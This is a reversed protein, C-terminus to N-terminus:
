HFYAAAHAIAIFEDRMEKTVDGGTTLSCTARAVIGEGVAPRVLAVMTFRDPYIENVNVSITVEGGDVAHAGMQVATDVSLEAADVTSCREFYRDRATAFLREVGDETLPGDVPLTILVPWRALMSAM